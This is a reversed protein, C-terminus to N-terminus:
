RLNIVPRYPTLSCSQSIAAIGCLLLFALLYRMISVDIHLASPPLYLYIDYFFSAGFECIFSYSHFFSLFFSLFFFFFPIHVKFEIISELFEM